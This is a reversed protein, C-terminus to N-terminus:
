CVNYRKAPGSTGDEGNQDGWGGAGGSASLTNSNTQSCYLAYVVGGAGGGGGGDYDGETGGNGGDGGPAKITGSNNYRDTAVIIEGGSGGGGGSDAYYNNDGGGAGGAGYLSPFSRTSSLSKGISQLLDGVSANMSREHISSASSSSTSVRGGDTDYYGAGGGFYGNGRSGGGDGGSGTSDGSVLTMSGDSGPSGREYKVDTDGGSEGNQGPATIIGQNNISTTVLVLGGGGDGGDGEGNHGDDGGQAGQIKRKVKGNKRVTMKRAIIIATDKRNTTRVTLKADYVTLDRYIKPNSPDATITTDSTIIKDSANNAGAAHITKNFLNDELTKWLINQSRDGTLNSSAFINGARNGSLEPSGIINAAKSVSLEPSGIINAAKGTSLSKSNFISAAKGFSLATDDFISAARSVLMEPQDFISAARGASLGSKEIINAARSSSLSSSNLIRAAKGLSLATDDLISAAKGLSLATNDFISAARSVSMEPQDFIHANSVEVPTGSVGIESKVTYTDYREFSQAADAVPASNFNSAVQSVTKIVADVYGKTAADQPSDPEAVNAIENGDMDITQNAVNGATLVQKLNQTGGSISGCTGDGLLAEDDPCETGGVSLSGHVTANGTVNVDLPGGYYQNGLNGFTAEYQNPAYAGHGIAVAGEASADAKRGFASAYSNTASAASGVASAGYGSADARKGVAVADTNGGVTTSSDGIEIGNSFEITQNASNDNSLVSPLGQNDTDSETNTDVYSKTAADQASSPDSLSTIKDGDMDIRGNFQTNGTVTVAEGGFGTYSGRSPGVITHETDWGTFLATGEGNFTKYADIHRGVELTHTNMELTSSSGSSATIQDVGGINNGNM